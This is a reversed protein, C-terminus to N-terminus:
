KKELADILTACIECLSLVERAGDAGDYNDGGDMINDAAKKADAVEQKIKELDM